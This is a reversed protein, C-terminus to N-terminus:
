EKVVRRVVSANPTAIHIFYTGAPLRGLDLEVDGATAARMSQVEEGLINLVRIDGQAPSVTVRGTTPNPYVTVEADTASLVGDTVGLDSLPRRWIGSDITSVFLYGGLVVVDNAGVQSMGSSIDRWSLGEDTTELLSPGPVMSDAPVFCTAFLSNGSTAFSRLTLSDVYRGSLRTWSVGNDISKYNASLNIASDSGFFLVTDVKGYGYVDYPTALTRKWTQGDWSSYVGGNSPGASFGTLVVSGLAQVTFCDHAGPRLANSWSAGLDSTSLLGSAYSAAFLMKGYYALQVICCSPGNTLNWTSGSDKSVFIAGGGAFVNGGAETFCDISNPLSDRRWTSGFDATEFVGSDNAVFLKSHYALLNHGGQRRSASGMEEAGIRKWQAEALPLVPNMAGVTSLL